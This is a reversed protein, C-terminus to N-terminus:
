LSLDKILLDNRERGADAISLTSDNSAIKKELKHFLDKDKKIEVHNDLNTLSSYNSGISSINM